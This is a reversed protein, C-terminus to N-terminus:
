FGGGLHWKRRCSRHTWFNIGALICLVEPNLGAPIRNLEPDVEDILLSTITLTLTITGDTMTVVDGAHDRFRVPDFIINTGGWSNPEM